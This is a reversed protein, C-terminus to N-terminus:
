ALWSDTWKDTQHCRGHYCQSDTESSMLTRPAPIQEQSRHVVVSPLRRRRHQVEEWTVLVCSGASMLVAACDASSSLHLIEPTPLCRQWDQSVTRTTNTTTTRTVHMVQQTADCNYDLQKARQLPTIYQLWCIQIDTQRDTGKCIEFVVRRFKVLNKTCSVQTQLKTSRQHCATKHIIDRKWMISCIPWFWLHHIHNAWNVLPPVLRVDSANNPRTRGSHRRRPRLRGDKVADQQSTHPECSQTVTLRTTHSTDHDSDWQTKSAPHHRTWLRPPM